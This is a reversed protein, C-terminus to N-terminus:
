KDGKSEGVVVQEGEKVGSLAETRGNESGGTKVERAERKGDKVVYVFKKGGTVQFTTGKPLVLANESHRTAIKLKCTYGPM